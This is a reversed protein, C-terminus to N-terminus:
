LLFKVGEQKVDGEDYEGKMRKWAKNTKGFRGFRREKPNPPVERLAVRLHSRPRHMVGSTGKAHYNVRKLYTGKTAFIKDVLLRDPNLNQLNEANYRASNLVARVTIALKKKSFQMQALAETYSLGRIQKCIAALKYPSGKITKRHCTAVKMDKEVKPRREKKENGEPKEDKSRKKTSIAVATPAALTAYLTPSQEYISRTPVRTLLPIRPSPGWGTFLSHLRSVLQM